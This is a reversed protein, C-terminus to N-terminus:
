RGGGEGARPLPPPHLEELVRDMADRPNPAATVARGVVLYDAGARAAASPTAVRAQDHSEGGALRIGPTVVLFDPGLERKLPRAELVSAVVGQLGSDAALKGLRVVEDRL